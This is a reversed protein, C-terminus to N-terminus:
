SRGLREISERYLSEDNQLLARCRAELGLAWETGSARTRESLRELAGAAEGREGSRVGPEMVDGRECGQRTGALAQGYDGHGKHRLASLRLMQAFGSGEGRAM